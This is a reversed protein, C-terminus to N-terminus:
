LRQLFGIIKKSVYALLIFAVVAVMLGGLVYSPQRDTVARYVSYLLIVLFGALAPMLSSSRRSFAGRGAPKIAKQPPPPIPPPLERAPPNEPPPASHIRQLAARGLPTINYVTITGAPMDKILDAKRLEGIHYAIHQRTVGMKDALAKTGLGPTDSLIELIKHRTPNAACEIATLLRQDEGSESM